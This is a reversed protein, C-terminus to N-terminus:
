IVERDVKKNNLQTKLLRVEEELKEKDRTIKYLEDKQWAVMDAYDNEDFQLQKIISKHSLEAVQEMGSSTQIDFLNVKAEDLDLEGLKKMMGTLTGSGKSKNTNFKTSIGNDECTKLITSMLKQKTEILSKMGGNNESLNNINSTIKAIAMDVYEIQNFGKVISIVSMLKVNDEIVSDDLMDVLRNFLFKRDKKNESEFPDYGLIRIVDKENQADRENVEVEITTKSDETEKEVEISDGNEFTYSSYQKLSNINKIYIKFVNGGGKEAEDMASQFPVELYPFDLLRCLRYTAIQENGNSQEAFEDFLQWICEKCVTQKGISKNLISNSVYFGNKVDKEKGCCSCSMKPKEVKATAKTTKRTAM